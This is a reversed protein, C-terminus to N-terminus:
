EGSQTSPASELFDALTPNDKAPARVSGLLRPGEHVQLLGGDHVVQRLSEKLPGLVGMPLCRQYLGEVQGMDSTRM